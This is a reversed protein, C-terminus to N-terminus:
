GPALIDVFSDLDAQIDADNLTNFQALTLARNKAVWLWVARKAEDRPNSIVSRVWAIRNTHNPTIPNEVRVKEAAIIVAMLFRANIQGNDSIEYLSNYNAM